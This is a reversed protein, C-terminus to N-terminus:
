GGSHAPNRNRLAINFHIVHEFASSSAAPVSGRSCDWSGSRRRDDAIWFVNPFTVEPDKSAATGPPPMRTNKGIVIADLLVNARLLADIVKENRLRYDEGINDTLIM